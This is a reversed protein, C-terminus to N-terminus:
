HYKQTKFPFNAYKKMKKIDYQQNEVSDLIFKM